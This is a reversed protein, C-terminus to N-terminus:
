SEEFDSDDTDHERGEPVATLVVTKPSGVRGQKRATQQALLSGARARKGQNEKKTHLRNKRKADENAYRTASHITFAGEPFDRLAAKVEDRTTCYVPPEARSEMSYRRLCKIDNGCDCPGTSGCYNRKINKWQPEAISHLPNCCSNRHCLHSVQVQAPWDFENGWTCGADPLWGGFFQFSRRYGHLSTANQSRYQTHPILCGIDRTVLFGKREMTRYQDVHAKRSASSMYDAPINILGPPPTCRVMDMLDTLSRAAKFEVLFGGQQLVDTRLDASSRRGKKQGIPQNGKFPSIHGQGFPIDSEEDGKSTSAENSGM